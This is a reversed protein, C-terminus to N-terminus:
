IRFIILELNRNAIEIPIIANIAIGTRESTNTCGIRGARLYNMITKSM